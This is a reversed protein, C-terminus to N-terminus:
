IYNNYSKFYKLLIKWFEEDSLFKKHKNLLEFIVLFRFLQWLNKLDDIECDWKKSIKKHLIDCNELKTDSYFHFIVSEILSKIDNSIKQSNQSSQFNFAQKPEFIFPQLPSQFEQKLCNEIRNKTFDKIGSKLFNDYTIQTVVIKEDRVGEKTTETVLNGRDFYDLNKGFFDFFDFDKMNKNLDNSIERDKKSLKNAVYILSVFIDKDNIKSFIDRNEDAKLKELLFQQYSKSNKLTSKRNPNPDSFGVHGAYTAYNGHLSSDFYPNSNLGTYIDYDRSNINNLYHKLYPQDNKDYKETKTKSKNDSRDLKNDLPSIKESLKDDKEQSDTNITIINKNDSYNADITNCIKETINLLESNTFDIRFIIKYISVKSISKFNQM